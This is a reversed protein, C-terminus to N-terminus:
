SQWDLVNKQQFIKFEHVNNSELLLFLNIGNNYGDREYVRVAYVYWCTSIQRYDDSKRMLDRKHHCRFQFIIGNM